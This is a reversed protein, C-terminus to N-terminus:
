RRPRREEYLARLDRAGLQELDVGYVSMNFARIAPLYYITFGDRRAAAFDDASLLYVYRTAHTTATEPFMVEIQPQSGGVVIMNEGPLARCFAVMNTLSHMTQLREARDALIAGRRIGDADIEVLPAIILCACCVQFARRSVCLGGLLLIAPVLPILYGAQDPLRLYAGIYIAVTLVLAVLLPRNEAPRVSTGRTRLLSAFGACLALLGVLGITGWVEVTGRRLITWGDVPAHNNYFTFFGPGYRAFVPAFALIGVIAAAAVFQFTARWRRAAPVAALLVIGIPLLMPASTIRCGAAIGLYIGASLARSRMAALLSLLVFAIAWVYDKSTVSSVYFVPTTAVAIGALIADRVGAVRAIAAFALVAVISCAASAGNLALPGGRWLAACALEHVPYGPLRSAEYHWTQAIHRAVRAVRWADVNVGYGADLFPARTAAVFLALGVLPWALTRRAAFDM